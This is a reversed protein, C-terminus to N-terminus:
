RFILWYYFSGAVKGFLLVYIIYKSEEKIRLKKSMVPIVNLVEALASSFIGTFTGMTLGIIGVGINNLEMNFDSFYFITFTIVGLIYANQYFVIYEETQSIHVLRPIIELLAVFAAFAGGIVLGSSFGLLIIFLNIM